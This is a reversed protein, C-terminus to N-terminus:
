VVPKTLDLSMEKLCDSCVGQLFLAGVNENLYLDIAQWQNEENRIRKCHHCIPLLSELVDIRRQQKRLFDTLIAFTTLVTIRMSANVISHLITWPVDWVEFVFALRVLPLGIALGIGWWRGSYWSSLFVPILFLLPFDVYPDSNFNGVLILLAFGIWVIPLYKESFLFKM